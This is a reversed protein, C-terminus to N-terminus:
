VIMKSIMFTYTVANKLSKSEIERTIDKKNEHNSTPREIEKNIVIKEVFEKEREQKIIDELYRKTM